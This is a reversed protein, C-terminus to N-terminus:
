RCPSRKWRSPGPVATNSPVAPVVALLLLPGLSDAPGAHQEVARGDAGVTLVSWPISRHGPVAQYGDTADQQCDHRRDEDGPQYQRERGAAAM